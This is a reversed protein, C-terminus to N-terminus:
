FPSDTEELIREEGIKYGLTRYCEEANKACLQLNKGFSFYANVGKDIISEAQLKSGSWNHFIVQPIKKLRDSTKIENFIEDIGKRIHFVVPKQFHLALDLQKSLIERQIKKSAKLEKTFFDFGTEGIAFIENKSLLSELFNMNENIKEPNKVTIEPHLAFSLEIKIGPNKNLNECLIKQIEFETVDLACSLGYFVSSEKSRSLFHQELAEKLAKINNRAWNFDSIDKGLLKLGLPVLHFHADTFKM